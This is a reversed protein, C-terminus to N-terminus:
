SIRWFEFEADIISAKHSESGSKYDIDFTHSANTLTVKAFGGERRYYKDRFIDAIDVEHLTTTDDLQVRAHFEDRSNSYKWSYKWGLRYDGAPVVGTTLRLKQQYSTASTSSEALSQASQYESGFIMTGGSGIISITDILVKKHSSESADYTVIYDATRDPATDETLSNIDLDFVRDTSLDGGGSIGVGAMLTTVIGVKADIQTQANSSLTNIYQFETSSVSGNAIKTPDVGAGVKINKNDINTITNQGADISKNTLIDDTNDGVITTSSYPLTLLGTNLIHTIIPTILTKNTLTDITNTGVITTNADPVTLTKTTGTTIASLQLKLKKTNDANNQFSTSADTLTKNSLIMTDSIGIANSSLNGLYQFKTNSVTGDALKSADIGAGAKIATNGINSLTNNDADITKNTLSQTTVDGVMTFNNDPIGILRTNNTSIGSVDFKIKKTSDIEDRIEAIVDRISTVANINNVKYTSM